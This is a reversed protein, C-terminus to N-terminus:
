RENKSVRLTKLAIAPTGAQKTAINEIAFLEDPSVCDGRQWTTSLTDRLGQLERKQSKIEVLLGDVQALREDLRALLDAKDFGQLGSSAGGGTPAFVARIAELSFGLRQALQIVRVRLLADDGYLRYGGATRPANPLLGSQEYFRIASPAVGASTALEGIKM